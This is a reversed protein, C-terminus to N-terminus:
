RYDYSFANPIITVHTGDVAVVDFRIDQTEGIAHASMYYLAVKSIQRIKRADVAEAALGSSARGRYKVEIFCLYAGQTAIIDIEGQRVRYNRELIHYGHTELLRCVREEVQVGLEHKNM